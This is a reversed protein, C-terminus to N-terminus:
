QKLLFLYFLNILSYKAVHTEFCIGWQIVTAASYTYLVTLNHTSKKVHFNYM